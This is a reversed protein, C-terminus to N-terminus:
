ESLCKVKVDSESDRRCRVELKGSSRGAAILNGRLEMAWVSSEWDAKAQTGAASARDQTQFTAADGLSPRRQLQGGSPPSSSASSPSPYASPSPPEHEMYAREVLGGFDFGTRPPTSLNSPPQSTFNTDILPTLDPQDTFLTPRSTASRRRLPHGEEESLGDCMLSHDGAESGLCDPEAAGCM